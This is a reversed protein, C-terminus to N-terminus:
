MASANLKNPRASEEPDSSQFSRVKYTNSSHDTVPARIKKVKSRIVFGKPDSSHRRTHTHIYLELYNLTTVLQKGGDGLYRAM